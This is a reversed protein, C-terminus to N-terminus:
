ALVEKFEVFGSSSSINVMHLCSWLMGYLWDNIIMNHPAFSRGDRQCATVSTKTIMNLILRVSSPFDDHETSFSSLVCISLMVKHPFSTATSPTANGLTKMVIYKYTM